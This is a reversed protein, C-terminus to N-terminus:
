EVIREYQSFTVVFEFQRRTTADPDSAQLAADRGFDPYNALSLAISLLM